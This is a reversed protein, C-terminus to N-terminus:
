KMSFKLYTILQDIIIIDQSMCLYIYNNSNDSTWADDMPRDGEHMCEYLERWVNVDDLMLCADRNMWRTMDNLMMRADM